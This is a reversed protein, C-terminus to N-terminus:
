VERESKGPVSDDDAELCARGKGMHKARYLAADARRVLSISSSDCSPYGVAVGISITVVDNLGSDLHEINANRITRELLEAFAVAGSESNEPLM